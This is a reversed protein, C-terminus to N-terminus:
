TQGDNVCAMPSKVEKWVNTELIKGNSEKKQYCLKEQMINDEGDINVYQWRAVYIVLHIPLPM